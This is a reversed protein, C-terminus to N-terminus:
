AISRYGIHIVLTEDNYLCVCKFCNDKGNERGNQTENDNVGM